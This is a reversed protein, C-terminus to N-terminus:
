DRCTDSGVRPRDSLPRLRLSEYQAALDSGEGEVVLFGRESLSRAQETTLLLASLDAQARAPGPALVLVFAALFALSM